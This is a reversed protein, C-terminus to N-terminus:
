FKMKLLFKNKNYIVLAWRGYKEISVFFSNNM